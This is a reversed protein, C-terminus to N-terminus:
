WRPQFWFFLFLRERIVKYLETGDSIVRNNTEDDRNMFGHNQNVPLSPIMNLQPALPSPFLQSALVSSSLMDLGLTQNSRDQSISSGSLNKTSYKSICEPPPVHEHIGDYTAVVLKVNDISREVYKRVKCGTYTCRYYSRPNANGVVVKQGYKRWRFGDGPHDEESEVQILVRQTKNQRTVGIMNSAVNKRRKRSLPEEVINHDEVNDEEQNYERDKDDDESGSELSILNMVDTEAVVESDFSPILPAGIPDDNPEHSTVYNSEETPIDGSGGQSHLDVDVPQHPLDNNSIIITAHAGGSIEVTEPPEDNPIPCPPIIYIYIYINFFNNSEQSSSSLMNPSQLLPSLSFGPSIVLIPSHSISEIELPPIYFGLRAAMRDCLGGSIQESQPYTSLNTQPFTESITELANDNQDLNALVERISPSSLPSWDDIFNGVYDSM